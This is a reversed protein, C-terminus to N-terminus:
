WVGDTRAPRNGTPKRRKVQDIVFQAFDEDRDTISQESTDHAPDPPEGPWLTQRTPRDHDLRTGSAAVWDRLRERADAFDRHWGIPASAHQDPHYAGLWHLHLSSLEWVLEPRRHWYPPIISAPLGYTRRLWNVWADLELWEAHLDDAALLNWNIPRAPEPQNGDGASEFDDGVDPHWPPIPDPKLPDTM